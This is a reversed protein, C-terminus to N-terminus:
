PNNKSEVKIKGEAIDKKLAEVKDKVEAPVQADLDHFPAIDVGMNKLDGVYAESTFKGDRAEKITDFVAQDIKKVVSTLIVKSSDPYMEAWDSDVGVVMVNKGEVASLTGKGVPGAVPMIIDSGQSMQQESLQKGKSQDSFNGVFSGNQAEKDWGILKVSKGNDENYKMIGDSFGDMFISVSPIQMGGFASVTGTKSVAASVYGALYAAEATNFVIPKANDIEVVNDNETFRADVLAFEIDPNARAADRVADNLMYGVGIILNCKQAILSDVNPKFDAPSNSETSGIAVGLEKEARQLGIFGSENFSKDDFGGEDSVMCAKFQESGAAANNDGEGANNTNSEPAAACGTMALAAAAAIAAYSFKRM